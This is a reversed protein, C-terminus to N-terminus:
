RGSQNQLLLDTLLVAQIKDTKLATNLRKRMTEQAANFGEPTRLSGIDLTSAEKSFVDNLGKKNLQLWDVDSSNVQINVKMRVVLGEDNILNQTLEIYSLGAANENNDRFMYVSFTIAILTILVVTTAYLTFRDESQAAKVKKVTAKAASKTPPEAAKTTPKPKPSSTSTKKVASSDSAIAPAAKSTKQLQAVRISELINEETKAQEAAQPSDPRLVSAAPAKSAPSEDALIFGELGEFDLKSTLLDKKVQKEAM